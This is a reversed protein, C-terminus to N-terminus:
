NTTSTYTILKDTYEKGNFYFSTSGQNWVKMNNLFITSYDQDSDNAKLSITLHKADSTASVYLTGSQINFNGSYTLHAYQAYVKLDKSPDCLLLFDVGSVRNIGQAIDIEGITGSTQGQVAMYYIKVSGKPSGIFYKGKPVKFIHAFLKNSGNTDNSVVATTGTEGTTSNFEFYKLTDISSSNVVFMSYLAVPTDSSNGNADLYYLNGNNDYDYGYVSVYNGDNSGAIVSINAGNSNSIEFLISNAPYQTGNVTTISKSDSITLYSSLSTLQSYDTERIMLGFRNNEPTIKNGYKDILKYKFYEQLLKSDTNYFYSNNGISTYEKGFNLKFVYNSRQEYKSTFTSSDAYEPITTMNEIYNKDEGNPHSGVNPIWSTVNTIGDKADNEATTYYVSTKAEGNTISSSSLGNIFYVDKNYQESDFNSRDNSTAVKFIGLGRDISSTDEILKQGWFDVSNAESGTSVNFSGSSSTGSRTIYTPTTASTTRLYEEYLQYTNPNLTSTYDVYYRTVGTTDRKAVSTQSQGSPFDSRISSYIGSFNIVGIEGNDTSGYEPSLNNTVNVGIEGVLGIETETEVKKYDSSGNNFNIKSDYVYCNTMTGDVHGALFGINNGHFYNNYIKDDSSSAYDIYVSMSYGLNSNVANNEGTRNSYIKVLYSQIVRSYQRNDYTTSAVLSIRTDIECNKSSFDNNENLFDLNVRVEKQKDEREIISLADNSTKISYTFREGESTDFYPLFYSKSYNGDNIVEPTEEIKIFSSATKLDKNFNIENSTYGDHYKLYANTFADNNELSTQLQVPYLYLDNIDAVKTTYGKSNITINSLVVDKINSDSDCYGFFGMDELSSNVTLNLVPINNGEFTGSFPTAESGISMFSVKDSLYKMDLYNVKSDTQVVGDKTELCQYGNGFDHGIRFYSNDKILGFNQLRSLNYLHQPIVIEYPEDKTGSGQYFYSRLGIQGDAGSDKDYKKAEFWAFSATIVTVVTLSLTAISGILKIKKM